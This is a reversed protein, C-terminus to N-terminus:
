AAALIQHDAAAVVDVRLFDLLLDVRNGAHVFGRSDALSGLRAEYDVPQHFHVHVEATSRKRVEVRLFFLDRAFDYSGPRLPALPPLLRQRLAPFNPTNGVKSGHTDWAPVAVSDQGDGQGLYESAKVALEEARRYHQPGTM